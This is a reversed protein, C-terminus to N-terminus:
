NMNHPVRYCGDIGLYNKGSIKCISQFKPASRKMGRKWANHKTLADNSWVYKNCLHQIQETIVPWVGGHYANGLSASVVHQM